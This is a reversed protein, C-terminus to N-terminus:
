QWVLKAKVKYLSCGMIPTEKDANTVYVNSGRKATITQTPKLFASYLMFGVGLIITGYILSNIVRNKFWQSDM